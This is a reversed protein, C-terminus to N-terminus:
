GARRALRADLSARGGGTVLLAAVMGLVLLHYEFGEGPQTGFWNMFFGVQAHTTVIAGVMIAGLGAAVVRTALGLLLAIAGISELLIVALAVLWPLGVVETFFGMTGEFGFGGFWGLLKQAGHPFMVVALTVRSILPAVSTNTALLSQLWTRAASSSSSDSIPASTSALTSTNM